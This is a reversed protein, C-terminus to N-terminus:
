VSITSNISVGKRMLIEFLGTNVYSLVNVKSIRQPKSGICLEKFQM